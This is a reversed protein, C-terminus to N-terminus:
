QRSQHGPEQAQLNTVVSPLHENTHEQGFSGIFPMEALCLAIDTTEVRRLHRLFMATSQGDSGDDREITQGGLGAPNRRPVLPMSLFVNSLGVSLCRNSVLRRM